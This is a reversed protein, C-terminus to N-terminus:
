LSYGNRGHNAGEWNMLIKSIRNPLVTSVGFLRIVSMWVAYSFPCLIRLHDLTEEANRCLACWSGMQLCRRKLRDRTNICRYTVTWSFVAIRPPIFSCWVRARRSSSGEGNCVRWFFSRVSFGGESNPLWIWKDPEFVSCYSQNLLHLLNTLLIIEDDKLLRHFRIDWFHGGNGNSRDLYEAISAGQNVAIRFLQQFANCLLEGGLWM